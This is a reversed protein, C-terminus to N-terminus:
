HKASEIQHVGDVFAGNNFWHSFAGTYLTKGDKQVSVWLLRDNFTCGDVFRQPARRTSPRELFFNRDATTSQQVVFEKFNAESPRTFFAAAGLAVLLVLIIFSKM